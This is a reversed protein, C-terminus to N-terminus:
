TYYLSQAIGEKCRLEEISEDRRAGELAIRTKDEDSLHRRVALRSDKAVREASARPQGSHKPRM